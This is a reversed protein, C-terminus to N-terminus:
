GASRLHRTKCLIGLNVHSSKAGYFLIGELGASPLVPGPEELYRLSQLGRIVVRNHTFLLTYVSM